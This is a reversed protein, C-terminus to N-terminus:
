RQREVTFVVAVQAAAHIRMHWGVIVDIVIRRFTREHTPAAVGVQQERVPQVVEDIAAVM